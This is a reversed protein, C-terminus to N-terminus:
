VVYNDGVNWTFDVRAVDEGLLHFICGVESGEPVAHHNRLGVKQPVMM